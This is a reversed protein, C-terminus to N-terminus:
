SQLNITLSRMSIASALAASLATPILVYDAGEAYLRSEAAVWDAFYGTDARTPPNALMAPRAKAAAAQEASGGAASFIRREPM